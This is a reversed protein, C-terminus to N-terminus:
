SGKVNGRLDRRKLWEEAEAASGFPPVIDGGIQRLRCGREDYLHGNRLTYYSWLFAMAVAGLHKWNDDTMAIV